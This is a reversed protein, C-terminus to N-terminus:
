RRNERGVAHREFLFTYFALAVRWWLPQWNRQNRLHMMHEQYFQDGILQLKQGILTEVSQAPPDMAQLNERLLVDARQSRTSPALLLLGANGYLFRRSEEHAGCRLMGNPPVPPRGATELGRDTQKIQRHSSPRRQRAKNFVDDEDEDM